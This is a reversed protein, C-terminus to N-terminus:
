CWAWRDWDWTPWWVYLYANRKLHSITIRDTTIM